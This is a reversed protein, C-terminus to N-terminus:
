KKRKKSLKAFTLALKGQKRIKPNSSHSAEVKDEYPIKQDEPIGLSKHLGGEKIGGSEKGEQIWDKKAPGYMGMGAGGMTNPPTNTAADTGLNDQAQAINNQANDDTNLEGQNSAINSMMDSQQAAQASQFQPQLSSGPQTLVNRDQPGGARNVPMAAPDVADPDVMPFGHGRKSIQKMNHQKKMSPGSTVVFEKLGTGAPPVFDQPTQEDENYNTTISNDKFPNTISSGMNSWDMNGKMSDAATPNIKDRRLARDRRNEAKDAINELAEPNSKALKEETLKNKLDWRKEQREHRAKTKMLKRQARGRQNPPTNPDNIKKMLRGTRTGMSENAKINQVATTVPDEQDLLEANSAQNTTEEHEKIGEAGEEDPVVLGQVPNPDTNANNTTGTPSAYGGSANTPTTLKFPSNHQTYGM